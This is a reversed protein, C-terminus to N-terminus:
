TRDAEASTVGADLRAGALALLRRLVARDIPKLQHVDFGAAIARVRDEPQGWGTIAVLFLPRHGAQARLARAVDFGSIDPLGIDVLALHPQYSEAIAIAEAGSTASRVDHGLLTVLTGMVQAADPYDDVVLVRYM